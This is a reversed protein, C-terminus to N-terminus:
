RRRSIAHARDGARRQATQRANAPPEARKGAVTQKATATSKKAPETVVAETEQVPREAGRRRGTRRGADDDVSGARACSARADDRSRADPRHEPPHGSIRRSRGLRYVGSCTGRIALRNSSMLFEKSQVRPLPLRAYGTGRGACTRM